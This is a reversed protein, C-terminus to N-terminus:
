KQPRYFTYGSICIILGVILLTIGSYLMEQVELLMIFGLFTVICGFIYLLYKYMERFEAEKEKRIREQEAKGEPSNLWEEHKKREMEQKREEEEQIRKEEEALRQQMEIYENRNTGCESCAPYQSSYTNRCKPCQVWLSQSCFPCFKSNAPIIEGCAYCITSERAIANPPLINGTSNNAGNAPAKYGNYNGLATFKDAGCNQCIDGVGFEKGCIACKM